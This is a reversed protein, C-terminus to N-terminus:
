NFINLNLENLLIKMVTPRCPDAIMLQRKPSKSHHNPVEIIIKFNILMGKKIEM